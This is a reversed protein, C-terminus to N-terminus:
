ATTLRSARKIREYNFDYIFTKSWNKEISLFSKSFIKIDNSDCVFPRYNTIGSSGNRHNNITGSKVHFVFLFFSFCLWSVTKFSDHVCPFQFFFQSTIEFVVKLMEKLLQFEFFFISLM